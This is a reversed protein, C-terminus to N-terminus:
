AVYTLLGSLARGLEGSNTVCTTLAVAPGHTKRGVGPLVRAGPRLARLSRPPSRRGKSAESPPRERGGTTVCPGQCWWRPPLLLFNVHWTEKM